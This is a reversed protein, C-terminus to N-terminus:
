NLLIIQIVESNRQVIDYLEDSVMPSHKGTEPNVYQFLDKVTEAILLSIVNLISFILFFWLMPYVIEDSLFLCMLSVIFYMMSDLIHLSVTNCIM